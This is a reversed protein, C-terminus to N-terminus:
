SVMDTVPSCLINQVRTDIWNGVTRNSITRSHQTKFASRCTSIMITYGKQGSESNYSLATCDMHEALMCVLKKHLQM